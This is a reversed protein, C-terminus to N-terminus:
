VFAEPTTRHRCRSGNPRAPQDRNAQPPIRGSRPAHWGREILNYTELWTATQQTSSTDNWCTFRKITDRNKRQSHRIRRRDSLDRAFIVLVIGIRTASM